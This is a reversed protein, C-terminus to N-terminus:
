CDAFEWDVNLAGQSLLGFRGFMMNSMDLANEACGICTDTVFARERMGGHNIM